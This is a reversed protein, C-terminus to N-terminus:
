IKQCKPCFYSARGAIKRKEITTRCVVCPTDKKGYIKFNAQFYGQKGSANIYDNITSGGCDIAWLLIAQIKKILKEWQSLRLSSVPKAPHIGAAFLSENAYINGIGAIIQSNMLFTKVPQSSSRARRHLYEGNCAESFPEPGTNKFITKELDCSKEKNLFLVQGFRRTDNMRLQLHSDLTFLLHDHKAPPTAPPCVILRGSMGMHFILSTDNAFSFVIYKARRWIKVVPINLLNARMEQIPIATRLPRGSHHIATIRAHQVHPIIGKCIVEVEPLEPM